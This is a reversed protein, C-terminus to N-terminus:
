ADLSPGGADPSAQQIVSNEMTGIHIFNMPRFETAHQKAKERENPTFSMGEGTIGETELKLSWRLIANRVADLIMVISSRSIELQPIGAQNPFPALLLNQLDPPFDVVLKPGSNSVLEELPGVPARQEHQTVIDAMKPDGFVMPKAGRSPSRIVVQGITKRYDPVDVARYGNLEFEVWERFENLQLKTAVVLAKRLLDAVAITSDLTDRQLEEILSTMSM